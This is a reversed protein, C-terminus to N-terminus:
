RIARASGGIQVARPADTIMMQSACILYDQAV